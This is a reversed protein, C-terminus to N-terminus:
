DGVRKDKSTCSHFKSWTCLKVHLISLLLISILQGLTQCLSMGEQRKIYLDSIQVMHVNEFTVILKTILQNLNQGLPM